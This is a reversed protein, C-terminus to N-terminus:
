FAFHLHNPKDRFISKLFYSVSNKLNILFSSSKGNKYFCEAKSIKFKITVMEPIQEAEITAVGEFMAYCLCEKKYFHLQAPFIRDM